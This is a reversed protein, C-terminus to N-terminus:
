LASSLNMADCRLMFLMLATATYYIWVISMCEGIFMSEVVAFQKRYLGPIKCKIFSHM